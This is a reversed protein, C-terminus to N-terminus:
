NQLSTISFSIPSPSEEFSLRPLTGSFYPGTFNGGVCPLTTRIGLPGQGQYIPNLVDAYATYLHSFAPPPPPAKPPAPPGVAVARAEGAPLTYTLGLPALSLWCVSLTNILRM